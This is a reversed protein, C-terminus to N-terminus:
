RYYFNITWKQCQPCTWVEYGFPCGKLYEEKAKEGNEWQKAWKEIEANFYNDAQEKTEFWKGTNGSEMKHNNGICETKPAIQVEEETYSDNPKNDNQPTTDQTQKNTNNDKKSSSNTNISEYKRSDTTKDKNDTIFSETNDTQENSSNDINKEKEKIIIKFAKETKNSYIDEIIIKASYEGSLGSNVNSFDINYERIESLDSVNVLEKFNYTTLDTNYPIEINDNIFIEPAITDKVEIKQNLKKNKYYVNIEYEGVAPYDKDKENKINNEVRIEQLEIFSYKSLDILEEIKPNYKNGYEIVVNDQMLIIKSDRKYFYLKVIIGFIILLFLIIILSIFIKKKM